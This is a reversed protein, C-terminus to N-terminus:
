ENKAGEELSNLADVVTAIDEPVDTFQDGDEGCLIVNGVLPDGKFELGSPKLGRLKGEENVIALLGNNLRVVEIYGDVLQQLTHLDNPIVMTRPPKDPEKFVIKM